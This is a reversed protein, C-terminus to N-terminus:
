AMRLYLSEYSAMNVGASLMKAVVHNNHIWDCGEGGCEAILADIPM